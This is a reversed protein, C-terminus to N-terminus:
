MESATSDFWPAAGSLLRGSFICHKVTLVILDKRVRERHTSSCKFVSIQIKTHRHVQANYHNPFIIPRTSTQIYLWFILQWKTSLKQVSSIGETQQKRSSSHTNWDVANAHAHVHLPYAQTEYLFLLQGMINFWTWCVWWAYVHRWYSLWQMFVMNCM